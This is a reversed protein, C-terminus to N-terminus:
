RRNEANEEEAHPIDAAARGRVTHKAIQDPLMPKLMLHEHIRSARVIVMRTLRRIIAALAMCLATAVIEGIQSGPLDHAVIERAMIQQQCHVPVIKRQGLLAARFFMALLQPAQCFEASTMIGRDHRVGVVASMVAEFLHEVQHLIGTLTKEVVDALAKCQM